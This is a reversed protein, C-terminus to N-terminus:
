AGAVIRDFRDLMNHLEIVSVVNELKEENREVLCNFIKEIDSVSNLTCGMNSLSGTYINVYLPGDRTVYICFNSEYNKYLKNNVIWTPEEVFGAATLRALFRCRLESLEAIRSYTIM